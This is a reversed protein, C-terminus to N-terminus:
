VSEFGAEEAAQAAATWFKVNVGALMVGIKM